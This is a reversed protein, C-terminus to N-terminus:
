MLKLMCITLPLRRVSLRWIRCRVDVWGTRKLFSLHYLLTPGKMGLKGQLYHLPLCEVRLLKVAAIRKPHSMGKAWGAIQEDESPPVKKFTAKMAQLLPAASYVLPDATPEYEVTRGVRTVGVIGRSQLRRLEQSARPISVGEVEALGSM